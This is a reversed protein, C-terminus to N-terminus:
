KMSDIIIQLAQVQAESLKGNLFLVDGEEQTVGLLYDTSVHYLKALSKLNDLSPSRDGAEYASIMASTVNLRRAVTKQTFNHQLRLKRLKEPLDKIM